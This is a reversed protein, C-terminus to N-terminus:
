CTMWVVDGVAYEKKPDFSGRMVDSAVLITQGDPSIFDGALQASSNVTSLSAVSQPTSLLTASTDSILADIQDTSLTLAQNAFYYKDNTDDHM